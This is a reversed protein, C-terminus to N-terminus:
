QKKLTPRSIKVVVDQGEYGARYVQGLSAGSISAPNFYDFVEDRSGLEKELIPRVDSFPEPLLMM